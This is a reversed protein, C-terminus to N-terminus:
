KKLSRVYAVVNAIDEDSMSGGWPAMLMNGGYQGAGNKIVLTLDADTGPTGDKDADFKFDGVTFNRPPPNAAMAAPGDGAGTVGHCTTCFIDYKGKGAAADGALASMPFTALALGLLAMRLLGHNTIKSM